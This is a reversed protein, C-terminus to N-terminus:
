LLLLHICAQQQHICSNNCAPQLNCPAAVLMVLM